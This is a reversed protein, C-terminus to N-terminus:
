SINDIIRRLYESLLAKEAESFGKLLVGEYGRLSNTLKNGMAAAQPTLAIQNFRHDSELLSRTIFGKAELRDLIGTVTPNQLMLEKEIERQCVPVGKMHLLSLVGLQAPTLNYKQMASNLRRKTTTHIQKLLMSINDM